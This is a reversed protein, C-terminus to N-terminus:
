DASFHTRVGQGNSPHWWHQVDGQPFQREACRILQERALWPTTHILAMTDQLQDRFGYAGGSQYYGSRGWLRSSLTQYLLWGNAMIDLAADPTEVQVAGLTRAWHEWVAELAQRAGAPRGFRQIAHQAEEANRAAGFVFVIEREQGIELTIPTQIAACPDLAAGTKGSLRKRHMAAPSALSGNRGLFESRSGTLSQESESVHAFVVRNACERGYANRAFVAGSYPDTETVIHKMNAHRWEGLVLEWYATLSLRRSRGSHNQLKIVMFKVAADMAVYTTLESSIGTQMHEFVSYGFGHRGVYAGKGSAPLPTPSWFSGTDEDRIYLAEGSTDSLPDNHWTTLRFEHANEVWTYAGGTESVVTGIYPSAIVNVWPAPTTQGPELTIVYERGDPTFGGLGNSFKLARAPLPPIADLRSLELQATGMPLSAVQALKVRWPLLEQQFLLHDQLRDPSVRREGQEIKELLTEASDNLVICAVAQLLVRDEESLEETRRVFVGGPKDIIHAESGANILGMVQDQLLARYGSFDENLIVLDVVLGKKRWYSHAQLMQKVQDIHNIDGIRILVIPLDGSVGFRWLVSQGLRNRAITEPPARRLASSYIVSSALRGYLQADAESANLHRLVEQSQFWAMEFAREVFHKDCYKDLLALAAERTDAIGSIIQVAVSEDALLRIRRRIAVIPDLVSGDTNSLAASAPSEDLALPNAVTRCRGIFRARDTEYSPQDASSETTVGPAALLHFMWPVQEDPTRPRRTCLIAQRDALIETEVFLNSFTRHALDANQPALVVEAYSTVEIMRQRSSLNTLTVRRIEVDDEPSVSIETHTEIAQDRRRYEARAQM